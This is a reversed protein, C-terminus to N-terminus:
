RRGSLYLFHYGIIEARKSTQQPPTKKDPDKKPLAAEPTIEELTLLQQMQLELNEPPISTEQELSALAATDEEGLDLSLLSSIILPEEQLLGSEPFKHCNRNLTDDM